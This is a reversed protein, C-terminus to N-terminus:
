IQRRRSYGDGSLFWIGLAERGQSPAEARLFIIHTLWAFLVWCRLLSLAAFELRRASVGPGKLFPQSPIRQFYFLDFLYAECRVRLRTQLDPVEERLEVKLRITSISSGTVLPCWGCMGRQPGSSPRTARPSFLWRVRVAWSPRLPVEERPLPSLPFLLLGLRWFRRFGLPLVLPRRAAAPESLGQAFRIPLRRSVAARPGRTRPIRRLRHDAAGGTVSCSWVRSGCPAGPQLHISGRPICGPRGARGRRQRGRGRGRTHSPVPLLSSPSGVPSEAAQGPSSM